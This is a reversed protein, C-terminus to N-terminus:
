IVDGLVGASRGQSKHWEMTCAGCRLGVGAGWSVGGVRWRILQM